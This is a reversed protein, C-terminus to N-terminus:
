AVTWAVWLYFLAYDYFKFIVGQIIKAVIGCLSTAGVLSHSLIWMHFECVEM